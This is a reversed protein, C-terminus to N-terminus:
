NSRNNPPSVQTSESYISHFTSPVCLYKRQPIVPFFNWCNGYPVHSIGPTSNTLSRCSHLRLHGVYPSSLCSYWMPYCQPWYKFHACAILAALPSTVPPVCPPILLRYLLLNSFGQCLRPFCTTPPYLPPPPVHLPLFTTTSTSCFTPISPLICAVGPHYFSRM